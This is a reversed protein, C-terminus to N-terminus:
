SWSLSKDHRTVLRVWDEAELLPTGAPWREGLGRAQVDAALAFVPAPLATAPQGGDPRARLALTVAAGALLLSDGPSWLRALAPPLEASFLIHLTTSM